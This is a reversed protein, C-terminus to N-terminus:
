RLPVASCPTPEEKSHLQIRLDGYREAPFTGGDATIFIPSKLGACVENGGLKLLLVVENALIHTM